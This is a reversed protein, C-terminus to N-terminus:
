KPLLIKCAEKLLFAPVNYSASSTICLHCSAKLSAHSTLSSSNAYAIKPGGICFFTYLIDKFNYLIVLIIAFSNRRRGAAYFSTSETFCKNWFTKAVILVVVVVIIPPPDWKAIQCFRRWLTCSLPSTKKVQCCHGDYTYRFGRNNSIVVTFQKNDYIVILSHKYSQRISNKTERVQQDIGLPQHNWWHASIMPNLRVIPILFSLVVHSQFDKM